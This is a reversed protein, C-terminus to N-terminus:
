PRALRSFTVTRRKSRTKAGRTVTAKVRVRLSGGNALARRGRRNLKATLRRTTGPRLRRGARGLTRANRGASRLTLTARCRRKGPSCGLTWSVGNRTKRFKGFTKLKGGGGGGIPEVPRNCAGGSYSQASGWDPAATLYPSYAIPHAGSGDADMVWVRAGDSNYRSLFAIRTGRPSFSPAYADLAPDTLRVPTGGGAPVRYLATEVSGTLSSPVTVRGFVITSGDPSYDPDSDDVEAVVPAPVLPEIGSGNPNM